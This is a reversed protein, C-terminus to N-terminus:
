AEAEHLAKVYLYFLDLERRFHGSNQMLVVAGLLREHKSEEKGQLIRLVKEAYQEKTKPKKM